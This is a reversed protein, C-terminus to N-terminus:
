KRDHESESTNLKPQKMHNPPNAVAILENMGITFCLYLNTDIRYSMNITHESRARTPVIRRFRLKAIM